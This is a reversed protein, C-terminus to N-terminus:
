LSPLTTFVNVMGPTDGFAERLAALGPGFTEPQELVAVQRTAMEELLVAVPVPSLESPPPKNFPVGVSPVVSDPTVILLLTAVAPVFPVPPPTLFTEATSVVISPQMILPFEASRPPPTAVVPPALWVATVLLETVPFVEVV